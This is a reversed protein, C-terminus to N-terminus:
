LTFHRGAQRGTTTNRNNQECFKCTFVRAIVPPPSGDISLMHFAPTLLLLREFQIPSSKDKHVETHNNPHHGPTINWQCCCFVRMQKSPLLFHQPRTRQLLVPPMPGPVWLWCGPKGMNSKPYDVRRRLCGGSLQDECPRNSLILGMLAWRSM